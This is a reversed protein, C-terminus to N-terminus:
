TNCLAENQIYRAMLIKDNNESYFSLFLYHFYHDAFLKRELLHKVWKLGINGKQILKFCLFFLPYNLSHSDSILQNFNGPQLLNNIIVIVIM